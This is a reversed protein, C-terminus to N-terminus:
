VGIQQAQLASDWMVFEEILLDDQWRATTGFHVDFAKGTPTLVSGDPLVMEGAFTGRARTIVTIWDGSGLTVPYPDNDVHVDPFMRFMEKMAATHAQRGRLPEARGTVHAIMDPHHTAEMAAIDRANFAEDGRRMLELLHSTRSARQADYRERLLELADGADAQNAIPKSVWDAFWKKARGEDVLHAQREVGVPMDLTMRDLHVHGLESGDLVIATSGRPTARTTVGPWGSATKLLSAAPADPRGPTLVEPM